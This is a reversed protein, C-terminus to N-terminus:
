CKTNNELLEKIFDYTLNVATDLSEQSDSFFHEGNPILKLTSNNYKKHVLESMTYPVSTDSTGHLILLPIDNKILEEYPTISLVDNYLNRSIEFSKNTLNNLLYYHGDKEVVSKNNDSYDEQSITKIDFGGYWTILAIVEKYKKYNAISVISAGFSAGLVIIKKYKLSKLYELTNELDEKENKMSSDEITGESEGHSRFDFRFTNINNESLKKTLYIFCKKENKTSGLGHCMVVISSDDNVKSLLGCLNLNNGTKYFIKKENLEIMKIVM